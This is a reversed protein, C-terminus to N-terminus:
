SGPEQPGSSAPRRVEETPPQRPGQSSQSAAEEPSGEEPSGEGVEDFWGGLLRQGRRRAHYWASGGTLLAFAIVVVGIIRVAASTAFAILGIGVILQATAVFLTFPLEAADDDNV